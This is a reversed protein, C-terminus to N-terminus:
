PKKTYHKIVTDRGQITVIENHLKKTILCSRCPKLASRNGSEHIERIKKIEEGCWVENVSMNNVNGIPEGVSLNGCACYSAEGSAQITLRQYIQPCKCHEDDVYDDVNSFDFIPNYAVQDCVPAIMNYFEDPDNAISPWVAQIKVVPKLTEYRDKIEKIIRLKEYSDDFKLPYRNKEYEAYLGDFSVTLWDLGALLVKEFFEPTMVSLNTLSSVETIGKRKAYHICKIFDRHLTSEGRLSLRISPVKGAIEDIVKKFLKFDMFERKVCQKFSTTITYCFPCQLNCTTSLELDIHIPYEGYAGKIPAENWRRRYDYYAEENGFARAHEYASIRELPELYDYNGKNIENMNIDELDGRDVFAMICQLGTCKGM